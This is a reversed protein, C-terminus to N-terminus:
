SRSFVAETSDHSSTVLVSKILQKHFELDATCAGLEVVFCELQDGSSGGRERAECVPSFEVIFMTMTTM